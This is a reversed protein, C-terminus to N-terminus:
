AFLACTLVGLLLCPRLPFLNSTYVKPWTDCCCQVLPSRVLLTRDGFLCKGACCDLLCAHVRSALVCSGYVGGVGLAFPVPRECSFTLSVATVQPKHNYTGQGRWVFCSCRQVLWLGAQGTSRSRESQGPQCQSASVHHAGCDWLCACLNQTGCYVLSQPDWRCCGFLPHFEAIATREAM